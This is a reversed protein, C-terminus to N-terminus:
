GFSRTTLYQRTPTIGLDVLGTDETEAVACRSCARGRSQRICRENEVRRNIIDEWVAVTRDLNIRRQKPPRILEPSTVHEARPDWKVDRTAAIADGQRQRIRVPLGRARCRQQSGYGAESVM